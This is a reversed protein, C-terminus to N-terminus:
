LTWVHHGVGFTVLVVEVACWLAPILHVNVPVSNANLTQQRATNAQWIVDFLACNSTLLCLERAEREQLLSADLQPLLM